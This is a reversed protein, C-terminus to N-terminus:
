CGSSFCIAHRRAATGGDPVSGGGPRRPAAHAWSPRWGWCFCGWCADTGPSEAAGGPGRSGQDGDSPFSSFSPFPAQQHGLSWPLEYPFPEPCGEGLASALAASLRSPARRRTCWAEAGAPGSGGCRLFGRGADGSPQAPEAPRLRSHRAAVHTVGSHPRPFAKPPAPKDGLGARALGPRALWGGAGALHPFSSCSVPAFPHQHSVAARLAVRGQLRGLGKCLWAGDRAAPGAAAGLPTDACVRRASSAAAEEVRSPEAPADGPFHGAEKWRSPRPHRLGAWAAWCLLRRSHTHPQRHGSFLCMPTGAGICHQCMPEAWTKSSAMNRSSYLGPTSGAAELSSTGTAGVVWGAPRRTEEWYLGGSPGRRRWGPTKLCSAHSDEAFLGEVGGLIQFFRKRKVKYSSFFSALGGVAADLGIMKRWPCYLDQAALAITVEPAIIVERQHGSITAEKRLGGPGAGAPLKRQALELDQPGEARMARALGLQCWRLHHRLALKSLTGHSSLHVPVM